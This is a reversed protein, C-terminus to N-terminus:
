KVSCSITPNRPRIIPRFARRRLSSLHTSSLSLQSSSLRTTETYSSPSLQAVVAMDAALLPIYLFYKSFFFCCTFLFSKFSFLRTKLSLNPLSIYTHSISSLSIFPANLPKSPSSYFHLLTSTSNHIIQFILILGHLHCM